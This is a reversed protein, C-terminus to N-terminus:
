LILEFENARGIFYRDLHLKIMDNSYLYPLSITRKIKNIYNWYPSKWNGSMHEMIALKPWWIDPLGLWRHCFKLQSSWLRHGFHEFGLETQAVVNHVSVPLGLM